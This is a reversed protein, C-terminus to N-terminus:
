RAASFVAIQLQGEVEEWAVSAEWDHDEAVEREM